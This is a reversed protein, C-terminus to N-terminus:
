RHFEQVQVDELSRIQDFAILVLQTFGDLDDWNDSYVGPLRVGAREAARFEAYLM